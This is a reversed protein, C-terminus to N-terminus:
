RWVLSRRRRPRFSDAHFRPLPLAALERKKIRITVLIKEASPDNILSM